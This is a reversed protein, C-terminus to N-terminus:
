QFYTFLIFQARKRTPCALLNNGQLHSDPKSLQIVRLQGFVGDPPCSQGTALESVISDSELKVCKGVVEPVKQSGQGQGVGHLLPRHRREPVPQDLDAALDNAVPAVYGKLHGLDCDWSAQESIDQAADIPESSFRNRCSPRFM